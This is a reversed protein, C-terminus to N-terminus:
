TMYATARFQHCDWMGNKKNWLFKYVQTALWEPWLFLLLVNIFNFTEFYENFLLNVMGCKGLWKCKELNCSKKGIKTKM